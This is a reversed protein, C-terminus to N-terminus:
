IKINAANDNLAKRSDLIYKKKYKNKQNKM